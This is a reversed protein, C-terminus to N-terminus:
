IGYLREITDNELIQKLKDDININNNRCYEERDIDYNAICIENIYKDSKINWIKDFEDLDSLKLNPNKLYGPLSWNFQPYKKIIDLTINSNMSLKNFSWKEKLNNLVIDFDINYNKSLYNYNWNIEPHKEIDSWTINKNKSINESIYENIFYNKNNIIIDFTINKNLIINKYNWKIDPNNKIFDWTIYKNMSLLEYDIIHNYKKEMYKIYEYPKYLDIYKYLEKYYFRLHTYHECNSMGHKLDIYKTKIYDLEIHPNLVMFEYYVNSILNNEIYKWSLNKNCVIRSKAVLGYKNFIKNYFYDSWEEFM